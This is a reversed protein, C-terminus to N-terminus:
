RDLSRTDHASIHRTQQQSRKRGAELRDRISVRQFEVFEEKSKAIYEQCMLRLWETM